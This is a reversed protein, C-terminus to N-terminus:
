RVIPTILSLDNVFSCHSNDDTISCAWTTEIKVANEFIACMKRDSNIM